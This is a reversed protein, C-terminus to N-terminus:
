LLYRVDPRYFLWGDLGLMAKAGTENLWEFYMGQVHPRLQQQFWSKEELTKEYQRLNAAKPRSMFADTFQVREGRFLELSTQAIPVSFVVALFFIVLAFESKHATQTM